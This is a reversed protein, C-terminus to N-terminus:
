KQTPFIQHIEMGGHLAQDGFMFLFNFDCKCAAWFLHMLNQKFQIVSRAYPGFIEFFYIQKGNM